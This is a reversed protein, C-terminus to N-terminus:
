VFPGPMKIALQSPIIKGLSLRARKTLISHNVSAPFLLAIPSANIPLMEKAVGMRDYHLLRAEPGM